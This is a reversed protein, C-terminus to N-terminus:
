QKWKTYTENQEDAAFVIGAKRRLTEMIRNVDRSTETWREYDEMMVPNKADNLVRSFARVEDAMAHGASAEALQYREDNEGDMMEISQIMNVNDLVLTKKGSYIESTAFSNYIKSAHLTATFYPYRLIITGAGDVGTQIKKAAYDVDDPVGFWAVAAYLLYVGLDALSGGSFQLSFINPEEGALVQDYRSSYKAYTFSAGDIEGLKAVESKVIAFNPEHLHRAAEFVFVNKAKAAAFAAEWEKTNSFIPKEVILHKGNAIGLMAQEFHLSNPSAIYIADIEELAAFKELDTMFIDAGYGEGFSQANFQTRSYVAKIRFEGSETAAKAFEHAISSTGIIGLSIM